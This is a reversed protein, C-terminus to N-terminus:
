SVLLPLRLDGAADGDGRRPLLHRRTPEHQEAPRRRRPRVAAAATAAAIERLSVTEFRPVAIVTGDLASVITLTGADFGALRGALEGGDRLRVGVQHDIMARLVADPVAPPAEPSARPEDPPPPPEQAALPFAVLLLALSLRCM